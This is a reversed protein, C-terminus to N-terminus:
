QDVPPAGGRGGARGPRGASRRAQDFRYSSAGRRCGQPTTMGRRAAHLAQQDSGTFRSKPDLHLVDLHLCLYPLPLLYVRLPGQELFCRHLTVQILGSPILFVSSRPLPNSPTRTGTHFAALGRPALRRRRLLVQPGDDLLALAQHRRARRSRRQRRRPDRRCPAALRGVVRAPLHLPWSLRAGTEGEAQEAHMRNQPCACRSTAHHGNFTLVNQRRRTSLGRVNSCCRMGEAGLAGKVQFWRHMIQAPLLRCRSPGGPPAGSARGAAPEAAPPPKRAAAAGAPTAAM